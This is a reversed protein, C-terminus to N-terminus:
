WGATVPAYGSRWLKLINHTTSWLSWEMGVKERGRMVFRNLGRNSMQGFVPEVTSGRQRYVDRGQKTLLKREMKDRATANRPIRGRPPGQEALAKRQKWDKKTAIFLETRNDELRANEESWYGADASLKEPREGAQEECEDLMPELQKCDNEDQTVAQAVIVQSQCDVVAQCNYGQVYGMRTKMIRSDPDTTNARAEPNVMEEPARPKRGRKKKGTRAEEKEREAIKQEQAQQAEDETEELRQMAQQLRQLRGQSSRLEEPLEDGRNEEGYLADEEADVREAEALIKEVEAELAERTRNRALAANGAVKRGDLAVRGMKMLGAERCLELVEIHLGQIADLNDKRFDAITRFDPQQNASLYRLGVDNELGRAIRRSSTIGHCYAFILVKVMMKPHYAARGWGDARYREYFDQLRGNMDLTEVVEDVFRPLSEEPVWENISPPLLYLQDQDYPLFNYGM